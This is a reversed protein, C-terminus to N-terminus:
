SCPLHQDNVKKSRSIIECFCLTSESKGLRSLKPLMCIYIYIYIYIPLICKKGLQNKKKCKNYKHKGLQYM